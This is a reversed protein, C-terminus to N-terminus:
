EIGLRKKASQIMEDTISVDPLESFGELQEIVRHSLDLLVVMEHGDLLSLKDAPSHSVKDTTTGYFAFHLTPIGRAAFVINDGGSTAATKCNSPYYHTSTIESIKDIFSDEAGALILAIGPLAGISDFNMCLVVDSIDQTDVYWKSGDMELEEAGFSIFRYSYYTDIKSIIKALELMISVGAANDTAGETLYLSDHHACVIITDSVKGAKEAVIVHTNGHDPKGDIHMRIEKGFIEEHYSHADEALIVMCPLTSFIENLPGYMYTRPFRDRDRDLFLVGAPEMAFLRKWADITDPHYQQTLLPAVIKGKIDDPDLHAINQVGGVYVCEAILGDPETSPSMWCPVGTLTMDGELLSISASVADYYDIEKELRTVQFTAMDDFYNAIYEATRAENKSGAVRPAFSCLTELNELMVQKSEKSKTS